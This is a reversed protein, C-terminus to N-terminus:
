NVKTQQCDATEIMQLFYKHIRRDKTLEPHFATVVIRGAQAMVIKGEFRALVEAQPGVSDILPARIFVGKFPPNGLKPIDLYAEFSERQRGFANRRVEMDVLGMLPLKNAGNSNDKGAAEPSNSVRNALLILGACTGYLPVGKRYLEKIPTIFGYKVILKGITTSEGGPIILADVRSLEEPKKIAIGKADCSKIM